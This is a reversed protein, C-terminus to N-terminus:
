LDGFISKQQKKWPKACAMPPKGKRIEETLQGLVGRAGWALNLYREPNEASCGYGCLGGNEADMDVSGEMRQMWIWLARWERCGYGYLGGNEADMDM